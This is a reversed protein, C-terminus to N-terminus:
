RFAAGVSIVMLRLRPFAPRTPTAPQSNIAYFRLDISVALHKKTFWRAGAGYNSARTRGDPDGIAVDAREATFSAWGIGGSIYSWGDKKGFNLSLQPTLSTMRSTVTPGKTVATTTAELTRTDRAALWEAGVGLRVPGRGIPYWHAGVVIGLGRTPLNAATVGIAGAIAPDEKFRAWVVRADAVGGGLPEDVQALAPAGGIVVQVWAFALVTRVRIM